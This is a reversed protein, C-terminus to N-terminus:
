GSWGGRFRNMSGSRDLAAALILGSATAVVAVKGVTALRSPGAVAPRATFRYETTPSGYDTTRGYTAFMGEERSSGGYYVADGGPASPDALFDTLALAHVTVGAGSASLAENLDDPEPLAAPSAVVYYLTRVGDKALVDLRPMRAHYRNDFRTSDEAYSATRQRDLVFLPPSLGRPKAHAFRPQYYAMAALPLHAPVVGQPHPWNDLLLVPEFADVAGAALAVAQEGPLDALV